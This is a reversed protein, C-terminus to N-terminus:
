RILGYGIDIVLITELGLKILPREKIIRDDNIHIKNSVNVYLYWVVRLIM